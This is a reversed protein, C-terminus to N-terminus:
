LMTDPPVLELRTRYGRTDMSVSSQVVRWLGNRGWGSRELRVLEGPWACFPLAIQMGLTLLEGASRDLQYRGQYRMAQYNSKGPMTFMRRCQGGASRFADNVVKYVAPSKGAERVWIESLVGYRKDRASLASVPVRDDIVNVKQEDWHTLLLQGQRDFRPTIGGHYRTFQYLVSWESSGYNISFHEVPPMTDQKAVTIGYPYVHDKLIDQITAVDYDTGLAENDLLVAAMSRGNIELRCGLESWSVECEDVIGTFVPEDAQFATFKVADALIGDNDCTWLCVVRFSDCPSGCGYELNWELLEPLKYQSGGSTILYATM